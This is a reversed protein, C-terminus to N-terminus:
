EVEEQDDIVVENNQALNYEGEDEIMKSVEEYDLEYYECIRKLVEDSPLYGAALILSNMLTQKTQSEILEREATDKENAPVNREVEIEIESIDFVQGTKRNIDELILELCWKMLAKFRSDLKNCKLDLLSYRSKIVVNTINGDGTQSSDFGMGFKYIAERDIDLKAKRAEYPIQYTKLDLDGGTNPAGVSVAGKAKINQRLKDLSEGKYGTVVYIPKDYDELNNSLFSAMRDFDDILDKVPVLDSNEKRNNKMRYFPIRGYNRFAIAGDDRIATVHERPNPDVNPDPDFKGSDEKVFYKIYKDDYVEAFTLKTRNGGKDIFRVYQRVIAVEDNYDDYVTDTMLMDSVQFKLNDNSDTRAFAYEYGKISAGEVIEDAFLQFDEDIYDKLAEGLDENETNFKVGNSLYYTTKQDILEMFFSHPIKVNSAFKDEKLNDHDDLYFIRSNKIDHESQYYNDAIEAYKKKKNVRFTKTLEDLAQAVVNLDDSLIKEHLKM